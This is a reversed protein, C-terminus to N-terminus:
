GKRTRERSSFWTGSPTRAEEKWFREFSWRNRGLKTENEEVRVTDLRTDNFRWFKKIKRALPPFFHLLLHSRHLVHNRSVLKRKQKERGATLFPSSSFCFPSFNTFTSCCSLTTVRYHFLIRLPFFTSLTLLHRLMNKTDNERSTLSNMFSDTDDFNELAIM